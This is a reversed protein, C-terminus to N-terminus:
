SSGVSFHVGRRGESSCGPSQGARERERGEQGKRVRAGWPSCPGPEAAQGCQQQQQGRGGQSSAGREGGESSCGPSQLTWTRGGRSATIAAATSSRRSSLITCSRHHPAPIVTHVISYVAHDWAGSPPAGHAGHAGHTGQAGHVGHAGHAGQAHAMCEM